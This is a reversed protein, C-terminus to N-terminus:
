LYTRRCDKFLTYNRCVNEKICRLKNATETKIGPLTLSSCLLRISVIDSNTFGLHTLKIRHSPAPISLLGLESDLCYNHAVLDGGPNWSLMRWAESCSSDLNQFQITETQGCHDNWMGVLNERLWFAHTSLWETMDSEAVGPVTAPWTGTDMPNGLCSYQLPFISSHTEMEEILPDGRGLSRVQAEHM